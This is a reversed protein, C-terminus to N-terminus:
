ANNDEFERDYVGFLVDDAADREAQTAYGGYMGDQHALPESAGTVDQQALLELASKAIKALAKVKRSKARYEKEAKLAQGHEKIDVEDDSDIFVAQLKKSKEIVTAFDMEFKKERVGGDGAADHEGDSSAEEVNRSGKKAKAARGCKNPTPPMPAQGEEEDYFAVGNKPTRTTYAAAAYALAADSAPTLARDQFTVKNKPTRTTYAAAAYALAADSAPTLARDEPDISDPSPAQSRETTGVLYSKNKSNSTMAPTKPSEIAVQDEDSAAEEVNGGKQKKSQRSNTIKPTDSTITNGAALAPIKKKLAAWSAKASAATTFGALDQFKEYDLQSYLLSSNTTPHVTNSIM